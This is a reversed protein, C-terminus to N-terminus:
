DDLRRSLFNALKGPMIQLPQGRCSSREHCWGTALLRKKAQAAEMERYYRRTKWPTHPAGISPLKGVRSFSRNHIFQNNAVNMSKVEAGLL